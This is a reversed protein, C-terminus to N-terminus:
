PARWPQLTPSTMWVHDGETKIYGKDQLSKLVLSTSSTISLLEGGWIPGGRRRLVELVEHERADLKEM